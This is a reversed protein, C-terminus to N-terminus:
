NGRDCPVPTSPGCACPAAPSALVTADPLVDAASSSSGGDPVSGSDAASDESTVCSATRALENDTLVKRCFDLLRGIPIYGVGDVGLAPISTLYREHLRFRVTFNDGEDEPAFLEITINAAFPSIKSLGVKAGPETPNNIGLLLCLPVLAEAHSFSLDCAIHPEGRRAKEVVAELSSMLDQVLPATVTGFKEHGAFFPRYREECGELNRIDAQTLAHTFVSDEVNHACDFAAAEALVRVHESHLCTANEDVSTDVGFAAALRAGLSLKSDKCGGNLFAAVSPSRSIRTRQEIKHARVFAAYEPHYDFFRLPADDGPAMVDIRPRPVIHPTSGSRPIELVRAPAALAKALADMVPEDEDCSESSISSCRNPRVPLQLHHDDMAGGDAIGEEADESDFFLRASARQRLAVLHDEEVAGFRVVTRSHPKVPNPDGPPGGGGGGGGAGAGADTPHDDEDVEVEVEVEAGMGEVVEVDPVDGDVEVAVYGEVFAEASKTARRKFSSRVRVRDGKCLEKYRTRFRVGLGFMEEEGHCTLEGPASEFSVLRSEWDKLKGEDAGHGRLVGAVVRMRGSSSGTPNRTGHRFLMAVHIPTRPPPAGNGATYVTKTGFPPVVVSDDVVVGGGLFGIGTGPQIGGHRGACGPSCSPSWPMDPSARPASALAEALAGGLSLDASRAFARTDQAM